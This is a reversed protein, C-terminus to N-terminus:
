RLFLELGTRAQRLFRNNALALGEGAVVPENGM